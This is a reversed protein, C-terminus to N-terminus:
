EDEDDYYDDPEAPETYERADEPQQAARRRKRRSWLANDVCVAVLLLGCLAGLIIEPLFFAV